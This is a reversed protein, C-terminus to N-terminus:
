YSFISGTQEWIVIPAKPANECDCGGGGGGQPSFMHKAAIITKSVSSVSPTAISFKLCIAARYDEDAQRGTSFTLKGGKAVRFNERDGYTTLVEPLLRMQKTVIEKEKVVVVESETFLKPGWCDRGEDPPNSIAGVVYEVGLIIVPRTGSNIFVLTMKDESLTGLNRDLDVDLKPLSSLVVRLDDRQRIMNFYITLGSAGLALVSITLTIWDKGCSWAFINEAAV